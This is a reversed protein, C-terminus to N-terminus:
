EYLDVGQPPFMCRWRALDQDIAFLGPVSFDSEEAYLFDEIDNIIYINYGYRQQILKVLSETIADRYESTNILIQVLTEPSTFAPIMINMLQAFAENNNILYEGYAVDFAPFDSVDQSLTEEPIYAASPLLANLTPVDSFYSSLNYTVVQRIGKRELMEVPIMRIPTFIVM